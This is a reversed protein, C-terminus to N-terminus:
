YNLGAREMASNIGSNKEAFKAEYFSYVRKQMTPLIGACFEPSLYIGVAYRKDIRLGFDSIQL